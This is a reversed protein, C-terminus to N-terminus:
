EGPKAAIPEQKRTNGNRDYYHNIGLKELKDRIRQIWKAFAAASIGCLHEEDEGDCSDWLDVDILDALDLEGNRRGDIM